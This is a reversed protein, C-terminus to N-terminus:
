VCTRSLVARLAAPWRWLVRVLVCRRGPQPQARASRQVHRGGGVAHVCRQGSHRHGLDHDRHQRRRCARICPACPLTLMRLHMHVTSGERSEEEQVATLEVLFLM